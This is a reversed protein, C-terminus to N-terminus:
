LVELLVNVSGPRKLYVYIRAWDKTGFLDFVEQPKPHFMIKKRSAAVPFWGLKEALLLTDSVVDPTPEDEIKCLQIGLEDVLPRIRQAVNREYLSGILHSDNKLSSHTYIWMKNKRQRYIAARKAEDMLIERKMKGGKNIIHNAIMMWLRASPVKNGNLLVNPNGWERMPINVVDKDDSLVLTGGDVIEEKM